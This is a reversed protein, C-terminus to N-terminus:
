RSKLNLSMPGNGDGCGHVRPLIREIQRSRAVCPRDMVHVMAFVSAHLIRARWIISHHTIREAIKDISLGEPPKSQGTEGDETNLVM